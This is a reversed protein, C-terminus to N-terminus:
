QHNIAVVSTKGAEILAMRLLWTLFSLNESRSISLAETILPVLADLGTEQVGAPLSHGSDATGGVIVGLVHVRGDAAVRCKEGRMEVEQDQGIRFPIVFPVDILISQSLSREVREKDAQNIQCLMDNLRM